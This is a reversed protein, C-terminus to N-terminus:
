GEVRWGDVLKGKAAADPVPLRIGGNGFFVELDKNELGSAMEIADEMSEFRRAKEQSATWEEANKFFQGTKLDRLLCIM